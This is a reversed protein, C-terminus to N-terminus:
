LIGLSDRAEEVGSPDAMGPLVDTAGRGRQRLRETQEGLQQIEDRLAKKRQQVAQIQEAYEKYIPDVAKQTMEPTGLTKKTVADVKSQIEKQLVKEDQEALQMSLVLYQRQATLQKFVEDQGALEARTIAAGVQRPLQKKRERFWGEQAGIKKIEALVKDREASAVNDQVWQDITRDLEAQAHDDLAKRRKDASEGLGAAIEQEQYRGAVKQAKARLDEVTARANALGAQAQDLWTLEETRGTQAGIGEIEAETKRYAQELMARELPEAEARSFQEGLAGFFGPQQTQAGQALKAIIPIISRLGRLVKKGKGVKEPAEPLPLGRPTPIDSGALTLDLEPIAGNAPQLTQPPQGQYPTGPIGAFDAGLKYNGGTPLLDFLGGRPQRKAIATSSRRFDDAM